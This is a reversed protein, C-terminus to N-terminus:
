SRPSRSGRAKSHRNTPRPGLGQHEARRESAISLRRGAGLRRAGDLMTPRDGFSRRRWGDCSRSRTRAPTRASCACCTTSRPPSSWSQGARRLFLAGVAVQDARPSRSPREASWAVLALSARLRRSCRIAGARTRVRSCASPQCAPTRASSSPSSRTTICRARWLAVPPGQRRRSSRVRAHAPRRLSDAAGRGPRVREASARGRRSGIAASASRLNRRADLRSALRADATLIPVTTRQDRCTRRGRGTRRM